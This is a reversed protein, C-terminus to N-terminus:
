LSLVRTVMSPGLNEVLASDFINIEEEGRRVYRRIFVRMANESLEVGPLDSPLPPTALLGSKQKPDISETVM